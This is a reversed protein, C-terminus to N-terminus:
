TIDSISLNLLNPHLFHYSLDKKVKKNCIEKYSQDTNEDFFPAPLASIKAMYNYFNRKTPHSDSCCNYICNWVKKEIILSIINICDDRHIMNVRSEPNNVPRNNKFFLAPNRGYGILGGFRVVTTSFNKNLTFLAEIELLVSAVLSDEDDESIPGKKNGYVSTSSIFIVNSISSSEIKKILTSFGLVGKFPINVILIESDFFGDSTFEQKSVDILFPEIGIDLLINMRDASRTSGKVDFGCSILYKSLPLGLWGTGLISIKKITDGERYDFAL